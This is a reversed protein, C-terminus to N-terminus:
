IHLYYSALLGLIHTGIAALIGLSLMEVGKKAPNVSSLLGILYGVIFIAIGSIIYSSIVGVLGGIGLLYPIIPIVAGSIYSLATVGASKKPSEEVKPAIIDEAVDVLQPSIDSAINEKIGLETLIMSLKKAVEKRDVLKQIEIKRRKHENIEKESKTSLYAGIAMSLTGSAGIILGSIGVLFPINFAGSLGSTAALVEVLGDSIGYVFDSVDKSKVTSIIEEHVAEDVSLERMKQREEESLEESKSLEYYKKIDSEEGNELLKTTLELGFIKRFIVYFNLKWKHYWKLKGLKIGRSIAIEKWIESHKREMESLKYLYIRTVRDKEVDGLRRYVESDFLEEIYNKNYDM